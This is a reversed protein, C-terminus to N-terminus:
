ILHFYKLFSTQEQLLFAACRQAAKHVLGFPHAVCGRSRALILHFYVPISTPLLFPQAVNRLRTFDVKAPDANSGCLWNIALAIAGRDDENRGRTSAGFRKL